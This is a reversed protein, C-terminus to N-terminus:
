RLISNESYALTGLGEVYRFYQRGMRGEKVLSAAGVPDAVVADCADCMGLVVSSELDGVFHGSFVHDFEDLRKALKHMQEGMCNVTACEGFPTGERPGGVGVRMSILDDGAFFIRNKKDLYGCHGASHGGLFILEIEYGDGLDWTYGDPVGSVKYPKFKVLAERPFDAWIGQEPNDAEFLYDWMHENQREIVPAEYEHCFVEDFEANGYAHDFHNHTNAVILEKGGTIEDCLAKMSGLGFATDILFAKEPGDILYMWADGMGDLSLALIGYMNERFKYVEVYPNAAYVRKTPDKERLLKMYAWCTEDIPETQYARKMALEDDIPINQHRWEERPLRKTERTFAM